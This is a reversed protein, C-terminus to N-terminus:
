LGYRIGVRTSSFRFDTADHRSPLWAVEKWSASFSEWRGLDIPIGLIELVVEELRAAIIQFPRGRSGAGDHLKRTKCSVCGYQSLFIHVDEHILTSLTELTLYRGFYATKKPHMQIKFASRGHHGGMNFAKAFKPHGL